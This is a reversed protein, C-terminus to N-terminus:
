TEQISKIAEQKTKGASVFYDLFENTEYYKSNPDKNNKFIYYIKGNGCIIKTLDAEEITKPSWDHILFEKKLKKFFKRDEESRKTQENKIEKSEM